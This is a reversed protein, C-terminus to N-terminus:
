IRGGSYRISRGGRHRDNRKERVVWITVPKRLTGDGKASALELEDAATIRDLEEGTWAAM